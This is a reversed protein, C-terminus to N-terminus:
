AIWYSYLDAGDVTFRFRVQQGALSALSVGSAWTATADLQDGTVPNSTAVVTGSANLVEVKVSGGTFVDTNLHLTSGTYTVPRTTVTGPEDGANRLSVFGDRRWTALGIRASQGPGGGHDVNFGGYYVSVTSATTQLTSSTFIMSDDWAGQDGLPLVPDRAPRSWRLLDQDRSTALQPVIPGGGAGNAGADTITFMWPLALYVGEYPYVPMGYVQAELGGAGRAAEDDRYDGEVALRPATWTVFDTSTSVFAMRDNTGPSASIDVTRQKTTAIFRGQPADYVVNSVDGYPLVPTTGYQTWAIGDPSFFAYYGLTAHTADAAIFTLMKYRRNADTAAPDYVVTGGKDGVINNATSGEFTYRGLNPKTWTVGDTSTAYCLLYALTANYCTYWMKYAAGPSGTVVSGYIYDSTEWPKDPVIVPAGRKVAPHVKRGVDVASEIRYDDTFLERTPGLAATYAPAAAVLSAQDVYTVGSVSTGSYILVAAHVTGAPASLTLSKEQWATSFAPTTSSVGIRAGTADYFELYLSAETGSTGKFWAKATYSVGAYATVYHRVYINDAATADTVRLAEWGDHRNAETSILVADNAGTKTMTWGVPHQDQDGVDFSSNALLNGDVAVAPDPLPGGAAPSSGLPVLALATLGAASIAITRQM